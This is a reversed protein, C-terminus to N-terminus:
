FLRSKKVDVYKYFNIIDLQESSINNNNNNNNNSVNLIINKSIKKRYEIYQDQTICYKGKM